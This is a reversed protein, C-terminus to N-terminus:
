PQSSCPLQPVVCGSPFFLFFSLFFFWVESLVRQFSSTLVLCLPLRTGLLTREQQSDAGERGTLNVPLFLPSREERWFLLLSKQTLVPLESLLEPWTDKNKGEGDRASFLLFSIAAQFLLKAVVLDTISEAM